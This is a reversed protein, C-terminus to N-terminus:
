LNVKNKLSATEAVVTGDLFTAELPSCSAGNNDVFGEIPGESVFDSATLDASSLLLDNALPPMLRAFGSSLRDANAQNVNTGGGEPGDESGFISNEYVKKYKELLYEKM